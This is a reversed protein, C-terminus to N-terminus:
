YSQHLNQSICSTVLLGVELQVTIKRRKETVDLGVYLVHLLDCFVMPTHNYVSTRSNELIIFANQVFILDLDDLTVMVICM